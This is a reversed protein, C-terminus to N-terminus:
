ETVRVGPFASAAAVGGADALPRGKYWTTATKTPIKQTAKPRSAVFEPAPPAGVEFIPNPGVVVVV